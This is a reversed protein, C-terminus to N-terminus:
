QLLRSKSGVSSANKNASGETTATVEEAARKEYLKTRLHRRVLAVVTFGLALNGFFLVSVQWKPSHIEGRSDMKSWLWSFFPVSLLWTLLALKANLKRVELPQIRLQM